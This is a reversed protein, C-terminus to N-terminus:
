MSGFTIDRQEGKNGSNDNHQKKSNDHTVNNSDTKNHSGTTNQNNSDRTDIVDRGAAQQKLSGGSPVSGQARPM